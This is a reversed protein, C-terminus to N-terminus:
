SDKSYEDFPRGLRYWRSYSRAWGFEESILFIESTVIPRREGPLRPHGTSQGTLCPVRRETFTWAELTPTDNMKSFLWERPLPCLGFIEIDAALAELRDIEARIIANYHARCEHQGLRIV